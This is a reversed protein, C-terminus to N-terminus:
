CMLSIMMPIVSVQLVSSTDLSSNEEIRGKLSRPSEEMHDSKWAVKGLTFHDNSLLHYKSPSSERPGYLAFVMFRAM